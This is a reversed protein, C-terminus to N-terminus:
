ISIGSPSCQFPLLLFGGKILLVFAFASWWRFSVSECELRRVCKMLAREVERGGM